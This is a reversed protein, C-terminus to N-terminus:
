EPRPDVLRDAEFRALRYITESEDVNGGDALTLALHNLNRASEAGADEMRDFIEAAKRFHVVAQAPGSLEKTLIGIRSHTLALKRQLRPDDSADVVFTQYYDLTEQLLARRVSEAGPVEALKEAFRTGLDDVTSRAQHFYIDARTANDVILSNKRLIIFGGVVLWVIAVAGAAASVAVAKRHRTILRATRSSLSPPRALTPLGDVVARLDQAFQKASEYRDDKRKAMAKHLVIDM